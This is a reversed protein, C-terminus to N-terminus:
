SSRAWRGYRGAGAPRALGQRAHRRAPDRGDADPVRPEEQRAELRRDAGARSDGSRPVARRPRLGAQSPHRRHARLRARAPRRALLLLHVVRRARRHRRSRRRSRPRDQARAKGTTTSCTSSARRARSCRAFRTRRSPDNVYVHAVQHDAVAFAASAGADLLEGGMSRACARDARARAARPQPARADHCRGLRVGVPRHGARRTAEYFDILDGCVSTSRSSTGAAAPDSPGVRQLNYDLHPLYVLTLTPTFQESSTSRRRPLGGRRSSRRGRAGSARLASVHRAASQLEDRLGAPAHLHRAAEPRRRSVDAAAHRRLRGDLVHQVVLVPERVHVVSRGSARKGSRRRRCSGTRSSGSSSRRLGRAHVLRQRRHRAHEPYHGTLYDSQATCTVAPFAPRIRAVSGGRGLAGPTPAAASRGDAADPRRRQPRGNQEHAM